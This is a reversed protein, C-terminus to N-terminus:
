NFMSTGLFSRKVTLAVIRQVQRNSWKRRDTQGSAWIGGLKVQVPQEARIAGQGAATHVQVRDRALAAAHAEDVEFTSVFGGSRQSCQV